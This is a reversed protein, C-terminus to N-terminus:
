WIPILKIVEFELNGDPLVITQMDVEYSKPEITIEQSKDISIGEVKVSPINVIGTDANYTTDGLRNDTDIEELDCLQFRLSTNTPCLKAKFIDNGVVVTPIEVENTDIQYSSPKTWKINLEGSNGIAIGNGRLNVTVVPANSIIELVAQKSGVSIPVFFIDLTCYGSPILTKFSCQDNRIQFETANQGTLRIQDIVLDSYGTNTIIFTQQTQQVSDLAHHLNLRGSTVSTGSLNVVREASSMIHTKVEAATLNPFASWLLMVAGTVHPTAMSTGDFIDYGRNPITSLIRSGPACLDVNRQGFNSFVSLADNHDTSCVSIVNNLGYNPPYYSEFDINIGIGRADGNGAAAMFLQGAKEAEEIVDNLPRSYPGGGWSNNTCKAGMKIAYNIAFVADITSGGHKGLFKLAMIKASWNIGTIGIGNNGVGAITGAVHTGHGQDDFPDNDNNAFDYGYVDDIYGNGDDDINNNPIEGPNKWMNNALDPHNYDVGTDIVACVVSNNGTTMNWAEEADIDADWMGGTQGFNNLGWLENLGTDNPIRNLHITYDPEIYEIEPYNNQISITTEVNKVKWVEANILPLEKVFKANMNNRLSIKTAMQINERFKVIIRNSFYETQTPLVKSTNPRKRVSSTLLVHTNGFTYSTPSISIESKKDPSGVIITKKDTATAGDNDTVMLAVVYEGESTFTIINEKASNVNSDTGSTELSKVEFGSTALPNNNVSWDYKVIKGDPDYSNNANLTVKLPAQGQQPLATFDAIPPQNVPPPTETTVTITTQATATAGDNDTVTLAVIYEGEAIFTITNKFTELIEVEFGATALPNNNVSWDYKVIIGDPDYSKNADLTVKLPAQGQQPSATFDAIPPQNVPPPTETTVTIIKQITATAGDNDTVTLVITYEGEATFTIESTKKTITIDGVMEISPNELAFDTSNTSLSLLTNNVSWDYNTITGDPDYSDSADLTVTLPPQGQQPSANFAAIPPQNDKGESCFPFTELQEQWDSKIPWTSYDINEQKCLKNNRLELVELKSLNGFDPISGTLKNDQLYIIVLDQHISLTPITGTLQNGDLQLNRLSKLNNFNPITGTLKNNSLLMGQLNKLNSFSPIVDALQNDRFDLRELKPFNNFNPIEGTLQNKNCWFARLKSLKSFNPISGTLKNDTLQFSSLNPLGTFDPITGILQNGSLWLFSVNPLSKFNPITGNLNSFRLDINTVSGNTCSIAYWSCPMNTVNWGYNSKWNAGDTSNYLQLLSECEVKSIETVANCDTAAQIGQNLVLLVVFLLSNKM